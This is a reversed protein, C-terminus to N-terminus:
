MQPLNRMAGPPMGQAAHAACIIGKLVGVSPSPIETFLGRAIANESAAGAKGFKCTSYAVTSAHELQDWDQPTLICDRDPWTGDDTTIRVLVVVGETATPDSIVLCPSIPIRHKQPSHWLSDYKATEKEKLVRFTEGPFGPGHVDAPDLIYRLEDRTLGYARAYWADLEARLQARRQEDWKYPASPIPFSESFTATSSPSVTLAHSRSLPFAVLWVIGRM